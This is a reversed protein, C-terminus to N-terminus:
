HQPKPARHKSQPQSQKYRQSYKAESDDAHSVPPRTGWVVRCRVVREELLLGKYDPCNMGEGGLCAMPIAIPKKKKKKEQPLPHLPLPKSSASFFFSLSFHRVQRKLWTQCGLFCTGHGSHSCDTHTLLLAQDGDVSLKGQGTWPVGWTPCPCSGLGLNPTLAEPNRRWLKRSRCCVQGRRSATQGEGKVLAYM